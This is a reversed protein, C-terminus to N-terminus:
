MGPTADAQTVVEAGFEKALRDLTERFTEGPVAAMATIPEIHGDAFRFALGQPPPVSLVPVLMTPEEESDDEVV